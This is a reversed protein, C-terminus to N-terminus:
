WAQKEKKSYDLHDFRLCSYSCSNCAMHYVALTGVGFLDNWSGEVGAVAYLSFDQSKFVIYGNKEECKIFQIDGGDDVHVIVTSDFDKM